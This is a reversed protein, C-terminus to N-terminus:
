WRTPCAHIFCRLFTELCQNVRETQSDTQPHYSSSMRLQIGALQFLLQWLRSTFIRDRDFIISKPLGHLKYINDMFLRAMSASFPHKLPVFHAFKTYKDVVVLIANANGSLPLGEIFYMSIIEWATSPVTLPQLLGPYRARDPKAQLCVACDQVFQLIDNRMGPWFFLNRIKQLTAPAGSHGGVPSEHLASIIQQQLPKNSGLWICHKYRIIGQQLSFPPQASADVALRSLLTTAEPDSIYWDQLSSLWQLSPASIALLTESHHRRCLADAVGNDVGRRYVVKYRLGLLKYFVKQQWPTHLRQENLHVLSKQDTHIVFESQMLYHWWSDVALLIALHEKEYTSLSQNRPSLAKSIFALPHSNQQLVAGVGYGSADTKVHFPISFDPLALVPASSLAMKLTQFTSDHVSTWIFLTDKKLLDTLPRAMIGFHCVFKRYYGV